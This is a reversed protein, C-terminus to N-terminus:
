GEENLRSLRIAQDAATDTCLLIDHHTRIRRQNNLPYVYADNVFVIGRSSMIETYIYIYDEVEETCVIGAELVSFNYKKKTM